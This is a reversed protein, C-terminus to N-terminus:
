RLHLPLYAKQRPLDEFIILGQESAVWLYGQSVALDRVHALPYAMVVQGNEAPQAPLYAFVAADTGM